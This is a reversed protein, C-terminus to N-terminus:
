SEYMSFTSISKSCCSACLLAYKHKIIEVNKIIKRNLSKIKYYNIKAYQDSRGLVFKHM